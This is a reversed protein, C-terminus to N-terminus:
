SKAPRERGVERAAKDERLGLFVPHRLKGDRTWETFKVQCVLRPEVWRCRRMEAPTINQAWKGATKAPLDSFPCADRRLKEM